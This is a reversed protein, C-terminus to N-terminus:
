IKFKKPIVQQPLKQCNTFMSKIDEVKTIDWQNLDPLSLLAKCNYFMFSTNVVNSTNWKSIDPIISLSSCDCFLGKMNKVNSTNWKSIDPLSNLQSCFYFMYNLNTVSKTDWKSIDPLAQLLVCHDFMGAMNIVNGIVWNSIDPLTTISSCHQFLGNMNTVNETNWKSIDPLSKLSSCNCFIGRMDTVNKTDLTSIDPLSTLEKCDYFMYSMNKINETKWKSIDPILTLNTCHYFLNSINVVNTTDWNSIDPITKLLTCNSFLYSMDTVNSIDFDKIETIESLYIAPEGVDSHFMYSIDTLSKIRNLQFSIENNNNLDNKNLTYYESLPNEKNKISLSFNYKNNEYFKKGFLKIKNDKIKNLNPKYKLMMYSNINSKELIVNTEKKEKKEKNENKEEQNKKNIENNENHNILKDKNEIKVKKEKEIIINNSDLYMKNYIDLIINIRSKPNQEALFSDINNIIPTDSLNNYIVKVNQITQYNKKNLNYDNIIKNSIQLFMKLDNQINNSINCLLNILENIEDNFNKIKSILEENMTKIKHIFNENPSIKRFIDIRHRNHEGECKPCINRKCKQCFGAFLSNHKLCYYDKDQYDISYHKKSHIEQSKEKSEKHTKFCNQCLILGCTCLLLKINNKPNKSSSLEKETKKCEHCIIISEDIYQTNIFDNLYIGPMSHNNNCNTISIKFNNIDIESMCKCRPCIIHDSIKLNVKEDIIKVNSNEISENKDYVSINITNEKNNLDSLKMYEYNIIKEGNHLYNFEDINRKISSAFASFANQILYDKNFTFESKKNKFIFNVKIESM